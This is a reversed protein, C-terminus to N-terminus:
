VYNIKFIKFKLSCLIKKAMMLPKLFVYIIVSFIITNVHLVLKHPIIM